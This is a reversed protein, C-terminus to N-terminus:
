QHAAPRLTFYVTFGINARSGYIARLTEPVISVSSGAGFGPQFGSWARLYRTYGGQLRAVTYADPPEPVVLDHASKGLLEFRGFWVDRQALTLSSEVLLANSARDGESNRGWGITTAWLDAGELAHHYTASATIRTVDIALGGNESPEAEKLNGASVQLALASTPLFWLRGSFSDLAGFDFDTRNSDPERGNFASAEAKWRHSFVGATVVGFTVHTSDMWHHAIPALPNPMASTRHPFAVPGLAPEGAPGGYIQWRLSGKLPADYSAALEMFLDHPHQRDHIPADNCREGSALLDPYGCGGITWPELSVMARTSFTGKGISRRAMGMAWNISGFQDDGRDGSEHLFQVFLNEHFMLQWSGHQAHIAYMPSEDPLWSTGSAERMEMTMAGTHGEHGAHGEHEHTQALASSGISVFLTCLVVASLPRACLRVVYM